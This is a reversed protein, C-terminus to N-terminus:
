ESNDDIMMEDSNTIRNNDGNNNKVVREMKVAM